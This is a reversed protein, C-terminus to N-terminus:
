RAAEEALRELEDLFGFVVSLRPAFEPNPDDLVMLLRSDDAAVDFVDSSAFLTSGQGVGAAVVKERGLVVGPGERKVDVAMVRDQSRFYLKEGSKSWIPIGGGNSSVQIRGASTSLPRLYVETQGSEDSSYALWRDDPSLVGGGESASTAVIEEASGSDLNLIKIDNRNQKSLEEFVLLRGDASVSTPWAYSDADYLLKPEGSGDAAALFLDWGRGGRDSTFVVHEGDPMWMPSGNVGGSRTLKTNTSRQLDHIWIHTGAGDAKQYVFKREDPSLEPIGFSGTEGEVWEIRGAADVWAIRRARDFKSRVCLLSGDEALSPMRAEPIVVFPEGTAELRDISFPLAWIGPNFGRQEFILHGTPSFVPAGVVNGPGGFVIKRGAPGIVQLTFGASGLGHVSVVLAESGPVRTVHHFDAEVTEDLPVLVEAEGGSDPLSYVGALHSGALLIRGDAGWEGDGSGTMSQPPVSGIRIPSGLDVSTKWVHDDRVFGVQRGDPAWFPFLAGETGPLEVADFAAFDRVWLKGGSSWMARRGDPSISPILNRAPDVNDIALDFRRVPVPDPESFFLLAGLGVALAVAATLAAWIWRPVMTQAVEIPEDSTDGADRLELAADGADRWRNKPDRELCRRLVRRMSAPLDPALVELDIDARLVDAILDSVTEGEFLKRGTLMEWLVVGFAWIDARRDVKKGRAQEPSMYAATGLIVGAATAHATMTPSMSLSSDGAETEWAKALGFDLVKVTGDDTLKINAPKLDRHVIGQEHAAELAEAIQLAIAIAEDIPIPGRAVRDSLDEGEVLEMALFTVLSPTQPKPSSEPSPARPGPISDTASGSGPEVTELGYLTAINPHNLSALVKAEREFRELRQPDQAFEAPLVKLAVERGLKEDTARWVEGMGGAGLEGTIRYHALTTGIV